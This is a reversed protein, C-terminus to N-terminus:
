YGKCFYHMNGTQGLVHSRCKYQEHSLLLLMLGTINCTMETNSFFYYPINWYFRYDSNASSLIYILIASTGYIDVQFEFTDFVLQNWKLCWLVTLLHYRNWKGLCAMCVGGLGIALPGGWTLFKGDPACAATLSLAGVVGGTVAAARLVLPGGLLMM